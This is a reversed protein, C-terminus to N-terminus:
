CQDAPRLLLMGFGFARHRGLGRVLLDAFAQTNKVLLNGKFVVDPGSTQTSKRKGECKAASKCLVRTLVFSEMRMSELDAASGSAFQKALWSAYIGQRLALAGDADQLKEDSNSITHLFVDRERGDKTRVVPRVRAEFGMRQGVRWASPFPRADFAELGLARAVDPAALTAHLKMEELEATTYALLGRKGGWYRFPKPALNGFATALLAHLAYGFDGDASLMGNKTAWVSLAKAEPELRLLHLSM